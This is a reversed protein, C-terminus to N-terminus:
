VPRISIEGSSLSQVEGDEYRVVLCCEEDVDLALARRQGAPSLVNIERGIVMSRARYRDAVDERGQGTYYDMFHNLIAAALRNKGDSQPEHFVTGAISELEEPFGGKPPYVNIGIGVVAYDLFGDELGFSGETLIGSAKKGDIYIDNVWKIWAKEQSVSEIAECAAVAAMTTLKVAQQPPCNEPRLLISLYLGTNAPSYFRRGVRGRGETQENALITYGEPAGAGAQERVLANTSGVTQLIHLEMDSCAPGLYKEIGPVSLIDTNAALCYGRNQVADIEYGEGRLTNVAKWVATRSVALREAIEEGSFYVGRNEEFLALVQEKTGM